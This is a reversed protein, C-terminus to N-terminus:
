SKDKQICQCSNPVAANNLLTVLTQDIEQREKLIEIIALKVKDNMRRKGNMIENVTIPKYGSRRAIEAGDGQQLKDKIKLNESFKVEKQRNAKNM